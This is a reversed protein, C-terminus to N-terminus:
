AAAAAADTSQLVMIQYRAAELAITNVSSYRYTERNFQAPSATTAATAVPVGGPWMIGLGALTTVTVRALCTLTLRM